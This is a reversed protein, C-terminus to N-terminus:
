RARAGKRPKAPVINFQLVVYVTGSTSHFDKLASAQKYFLALRDREPPAAQAVQMNFAAPKDPTLTYRVMVGFSAQSQAFAKRAVPKVSQNIRIFEDPKINRACGDDPSTIEFKELKVNTDPAATPDALQISMGHSCQQQGDPTTAAAPPQPLAQLLLSLALAVMM